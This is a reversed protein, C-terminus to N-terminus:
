FLQFRNSVNQCLHTEYSMKKEYNNIYYYMLYYKIISINM